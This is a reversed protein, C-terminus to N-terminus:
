GKEALRDCISVGSRYGPYRLAKRILWRVGSLVSTIQPDVVTGWISREYDSSGRKLAPFFTRGVRERKQVMVAATGYDPHEIVVSVAGLPGGIIPIRLLNTDELVVQSLGIAGAKGKLYIKATAGVIPNGLGDVVTRLKHEKGFYKALDYSLGEKYLGAYGTAGLAGKVNPDEQDDAIVAVMVQSDPYDFDFYVTREKIAATAMEFAWRDLKWNEYVRVWVERGDLDFDTFEKFKIRGIDIIQGQGARIPETVVPAWRETARMKLWLRVDCDAPIYTRNLRNPRLLHNARFKRSSRYQECLNRVWSRGDDWPLDWKAHIRAKRRGFVPELQAIAAPYLKIPPVWVMDNQDRVFKVNEGGHHPIAVYDQEFATIFDFGKLNSVPLEFWGQEDTRVVTRSPRIMLLVKLVRDNMSPKMPLQHLREWQETTLASLDKETSDGAAVLAGPMPEGTIGHIVQGTYIIHKGAPKPKTRFVLHRPSDETLHIPEFRCVRGPWGKQEYMTAELRGLPLVRGDRLGPYSISWTGYEFVEVTLRIKKLQEAETIPGHADEFGFTRFRNGRPLVITREHDNSIKGSWLALGLDGPPEIMVTYKSHAPILRGPKRRDVPVYMSFRGDRDTLAVWAGSRSNLRVDVGGDIWHCIIRAGAVAKGEPDVLLGRISRDYENSDQRVLPVWYKRPKSGGSCRCDGEKAVARGYDPHRVVCHGKRSGLALDADQVGGAEDLVMEKLLPKKGNKDRAFVQVHLGPIPEGLADVFTCRHKKAQDAGAASEVWLGAPGVAGVLLVV